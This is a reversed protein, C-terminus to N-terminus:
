HIVDEDLQISTIEVKSNELTKHFCFFKETRSIWGILDRYEWIPFEVKM